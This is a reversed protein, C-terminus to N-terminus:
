SYRWLLVRAVPGPTGGRRRWPTDRARFDRRNSAVRSARRRSGRLRLSSLAGCRAQWNAVHGGGDLRAGHALLHLDMARSAGSLSTRAIPADAARLVRTTATGPEVITRRDLQLDERCTSQQRPGRRRTRTEVGRSGM